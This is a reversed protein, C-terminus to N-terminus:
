LRLSSDYPFLVTDLTTRWPLLNEEQTVYGIKCALGPDLRAADDLRLTESGFRVEGGSATDIQALMNLLTTKGSGSPGVVTLFEGEGVAFSLGQIIWPSPDRCARAGFRKCLDRVELLPAAM